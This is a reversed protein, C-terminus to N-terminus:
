WHKACLANFLTCYPPWSVATHKIGQLYGNM